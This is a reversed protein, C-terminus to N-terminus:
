KNLQIVSLLKFYSNEHPNLCRTQKFGSHIQRVKCLSAKLGLQMALKVLSRDSTEMALDDLLAVLCGEEFDFFTFPAALLM